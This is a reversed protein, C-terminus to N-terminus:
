NKPRRLPRIARAARALGDVIKAVEAAVRDSIAATAARADRMSPHNTGLAAAKESTQRESEALQQKLMAIVPSQLVEPVSEDGLRGGGRQQAEQLQAAAQMKASQAIM